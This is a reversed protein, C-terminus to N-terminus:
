RGSEKALSRDSEADRERQAEGQLRQRIIKVLRDVVEPTLLADADAVTIQTDVSNIRVDVM